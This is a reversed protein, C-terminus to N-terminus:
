FQKNPFVKRSNKKVVFESQKKGGKERENLSTVVGYTEVM